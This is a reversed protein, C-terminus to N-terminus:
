RRRRRLAAVPVAVVWGLILVVGVVFFVSIYLWETSGSEPLRRRLCTQAQCELRTLVITGPRGHGTAARVAPGIDIV